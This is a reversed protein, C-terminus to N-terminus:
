CHHSAVPSAEPADVEMPTCTDPAPVKGPASRVGPAQRKSKRKRRKRTKRLVFWTNEIDWHGCCGDVEEVVYYVKKKSSAWPGYRVIRGNELAVIAYVFYALVM